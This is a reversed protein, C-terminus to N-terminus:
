ANRAEKIAALIAEEVSLSSSGSWELYHKRALELDPDVPPQEHDLIHQCLANYYGNRDASPNHLSTARAVVWKPYEMPTEKKKYGIIQSSVPPKSQRWNHPYRGIYCGDAYMVDDKDGTWDGPAEDGGYWPEFGLARIETENM